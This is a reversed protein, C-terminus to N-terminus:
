YASVEGLDLGRVLACCPPVVLIFSPRILAAVTAASAATPRAAQPLPV